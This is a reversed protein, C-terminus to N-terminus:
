AMCRRIVTHNMHQFPDRLFKDYVIVTSAGYLSESFRHFCRFGETSSLSKALIRVMGRGFVLVAADIREAPTCLDNRICKM